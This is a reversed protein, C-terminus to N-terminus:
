IKSHELWFEILVWTLKSIIIWNRTFNQITWQWSVYSRQLNKPWVKEVKSLLIGDFDSNQCKWTSQHFNTLNRMDNGLRCTLKEEFKAYKKLTILSLEETSKLEFLIYKAWFSGMLTFIKSVKSHEPWFKDFEEHWNQFSLDIGRWIKCWTMVCLEDTSKLSISKRSQIFPDWSLGFKSVKLHEPSFKEYEEHWKGFWLDTIRWIKCWGETGHFIVGRYNKPWVNFIKCLLLM